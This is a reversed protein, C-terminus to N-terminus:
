PSRGDDSFFCGGHRGMHRGQVAHRQGHEVVTKTSVLWWCTRFHRPDTQLLPHDVIVSSKQFDSCRESTPPHPLHRNPNFIDSVPYSQVIKLLGTASFIMDQKLHEGALSPLIEPWAHVVVRLRLAHLFPQKPDLADVVAVVAVQRRRQLFLGWAPGYAARPRCSTSWARGSNKNVGAVLLDSFPPSRNTINFMGVRRLSLM